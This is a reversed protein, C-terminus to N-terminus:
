ERNSLRNLELNLQLVNVCPEGLVGFHRGTTHRRVLERVAEPNMKRAEAVRLVQFDAAALSIQPDLGSASATVLDVPIEADPTAYQRLEAIRQQAAEKLQPHSPGFNSGSSAGANYPQPGTASLRGWFFEPGSFEQGILESGVSTEGATIFSGNAQHPFVLHAIGTIIGPYVIGTLVTLSILMTLAPRFHQLM